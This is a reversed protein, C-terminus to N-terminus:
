ILKQNVQEYVEAMTIVNQSQTATETSKALYYECREMKGQNKCIRAMDLWSEILNPHYRGFIGRKIKLSEQMAIDAKATNDQVLHLRAMKELVNATMLHRSGYNQEFIDLAKEYNGLAQSYEGKAFKLNGAELIFPAMEKSELHCNDLMIKVAETLVMESQEINNQRRYVDSLMRLTHAVYPHNDFLATKQLKVGKEFYNSAEALQGKDSCVTAMDILCLALEGTEVKEERAKKLAESALKQAKDYKGFAIYARSMSRLTKTSSPKKTTAADTSVIFSLLLVIIVSKKNLASNISM